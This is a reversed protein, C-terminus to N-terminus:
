RAASTGTIEIGHGTAKTTTTNEQSMARATDRLLPFTSIVSARKRSVARRCAAGAAVMYRLTYRSRTFGEVEQPVPRLEAVSVVGSFVSRYPKARM